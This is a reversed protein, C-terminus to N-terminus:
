GVTLFNRIEAFLDYGLRCLTINKDKDLHAISEHSVEDFLLDGDNGFTLTDGYVPVRDGRHCLMCSSNRQRGTPIGHQDDFSTPRGAYVVVVKAIGDVVADGNCLVVDYQKDRGWFEWPTKFLEFFERVIEHDATDAIVGIM